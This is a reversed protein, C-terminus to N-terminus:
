GEVGDCPRNRIKWAFAPVGEGHLGPMLLNATSILNRKLPILVLLFLVVKWNSLPTGKCTHTGKTIIDM